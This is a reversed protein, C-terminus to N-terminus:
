VSPAVNDLQRSWHPRSILTGYDQRTKEELQTNTSLCLAFSDLATSSSVFSFKAGAYDRALKIFNNRDISKQFLKSHSHLTQAYISMINRATPESMHISLPNPMTFGDLYDTIRLDDSHVRFINYYMTDLDLYPAEASYISHPEPFIREIGIFGEYWTAIKDKANQFSVGDKYVEVNLFLIFRHADAFKRVNASNDLIDVLEIDNEFTVVLLNLKNKARLDLTRAYDPTKDKSIHLYTIAVKGTNVLTDYISRM